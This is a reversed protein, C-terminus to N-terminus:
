KVKSISDNGFEHLCYVEFIKKQFNISGRQYIWKRTSSTDTMKLFTTPCIVKTMLIRFMPFLIESWHFQSLYYMEHLDSSNSISKWLSDRFTLNCPSSADKVHHVTMQTSQVVNLPGVRPCWMTFYSGTSYCVPCFSRPGVFIISVRYLIFNDRHKVFYWAM